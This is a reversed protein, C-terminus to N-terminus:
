SSSTFRNSIVVCIKSLARLDHNMRSLPSPGEFAAQCKRAKRAAVGALDALQSYTESNLDNLALALASVARDYCGDCIQLRRSYDSGSTANHLLEQRIYAQIHTANLYALDFAIFALVYTDATPTRPDSYLSEVCFNYNTTNKCISSVLETPQEAGSTSIRLCCCVFLFFTFLRLSPLYAM